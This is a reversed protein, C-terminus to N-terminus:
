IYVTQLKVKSYVIYLTYLLHKCHSKGAIGLFKSIMDALDKHTEKTLNAYLCEKLALLKKTSKDGQLIMYLNNTAERAGKKFGIDDAEDKDIVGKRLLDTGLGRIDCEKLQKLFEERELFEKIEKLTESINLFLKDFVFVISQLSVISSICLSQSGLLEFTSPIKLYPFHVIIHHFYKKAPSAM